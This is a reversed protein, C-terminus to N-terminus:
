HQGQAAASSSSGSSSGRHGQCEIARRVSAAAERVPKKFCKESRSSAVLHTGLGLRCGGLPEAPLRGAWPAAEGSKGFVAACWESVGFAQLVPRCWTADAEGRPRTSGGGAQGPFRITFVGRPRVSARTSQAAPIGANIEEELEVLWGGVVGEVAGGPTHGAWSSLM